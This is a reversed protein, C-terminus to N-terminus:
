VLGWKLDKKMMDIQVSKKTSQHFLSIFMKIYKDEIVHLVRGYLGHQKRRDRNRGRKTIKTAGTHGGGRNPLSM